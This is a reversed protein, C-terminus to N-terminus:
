ISKESESERERERERKGRWMIRAIFSFVGHVTSVIYVSIPHRDGLFM